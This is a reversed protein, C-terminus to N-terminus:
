VTMNEHYKMKLIERRHLLETPVGQTTAHCTARYTTSARYHLNEKWFQQKSNEKLINHLCEFSPLPMHSSCDLIM